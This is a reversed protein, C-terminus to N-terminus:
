SGGSADDEVCNASSMVGEINIGEWNLLWGGRVSFKSEGIAVEYIEVAVEEGVEGWM